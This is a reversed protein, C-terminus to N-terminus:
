KKKRYFLCYAESSVNKSIDIKKVISDNFEHWSDDPTKVYAYYHGGHVGGRHNCIGYLDYKFSDKDYGIIYKSLDLDELPFNVFTDDKVASNNFRKLTVILVDPLKWFLIQKSVVRKGDDNVYQNKEELKEDKTYVDFCDTINLQQSEKIEPIPLDLMLFPEPNSGLVANDVGKTNSVHIGYFIDLVESYEKKYMNKMMTFCEKAIKDKNTTINGNINMNVERMISTHFCDIIFNLFEPLDNQAFGTFLMKKKIKAVKQVAGLFGGPSIICDESWMMNRLKNWEMLILSEPKKQIKKQNDSKDLFDNFKYTHSLCQLTTNMFCTNGLNALGTLGETKKKIGFSM